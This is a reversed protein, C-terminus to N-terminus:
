TLGTYQRNSMPAKVNLNHLTRKPLGRRPLSTFLFFRTCVCIGTRCLRRSDDRGGVVVGIELTALGLKFFLSFRSQSVISLVWSFGLGVSGEFRVNHEKPNRIIAKTCYGRFGIGIVSAGISLRLM